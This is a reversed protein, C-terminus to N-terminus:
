GSRRGHRLQAVAQELRNLAKVLEGERIELPTFRHGDFDIATQLHVAERVSHLHLTAAVGRWHEVSRAGGIMGYGVFAVAKHNWESFLLDVANKMPAPLSHNYEPTVFVYGDFSDVLDSWAQTSPEDYAKDTRQEYRTTLPHEILDLLVYEVGDRGSAKELVWDGVVKGRRGPRTSGVFVAIRM